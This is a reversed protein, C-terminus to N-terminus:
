ASRFIKLEEEMKKELLYGTVFAVSIDEVKKLLAGLLYWYHRGEKDIDVILKSPSIDAEEGSLVQDFDVFIDITTNKESGKLTIEYILVDFPNEPLTSNIAIIYDAENCTTIFLKVILDILERNLGALVIKYNM